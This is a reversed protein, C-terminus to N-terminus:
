PGRPHFLPGNKMRLCRHITFVMLRGGSALFSFQTTEIALVLDVFALPPISAHALDSFGSGGYHRSKKWTFFTFPLLLMGLQRGSAIQEYRRKSASL